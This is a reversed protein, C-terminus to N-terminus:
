LREYRRKLRGRMRYYAQDGRCFRGYTEASTGIYFKRANRHSLALLFLRIRKGCSCDRRPLRGCSQMGLRVSRGFRYVGNKKKQNEGPFLRTKSQKQKRRKRNRERRLRSHGKRRPCIRRSRRFNGYAYRLLEM